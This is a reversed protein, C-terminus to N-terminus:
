KSTEDPPNERDFETIYIRNDVEYLFGRNILRDFAHSIDSSDVDLDPHAEIALEVAQHRRLFKQDCETQIYTELWSYIDQIWEPLPPRDDDWM